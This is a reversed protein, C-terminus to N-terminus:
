VWRLEPIRDAYRQSIAANHEDGGPLNRSIRVPPVHGAQVMWGTAEVLVAHLLAAAAITSAPGVPGPLADDTLLADGAPVGTDLFVDCVDLLRLGDAHRSATALSHQRSGVGVVTAGSARAQQAVEIPMPNIGSNSIVFLVEGPRVDGQRLVVPALGGFREFKDSVRDPWIARSSTLSAARLCVDEAPLRSHGAGFLHVVGGQAVSRGVIEGVTTVAPGQDAAVSRLLDAVAHLYATGTVPGPTV